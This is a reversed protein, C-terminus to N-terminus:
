IYQMYPIFIIGGVIVAAVASILVAGAAVDKTDRAYPHEEPSTLDIDIEIATNFAEATFVIGSTLILLIWETQTIHFYVGLAVACLFLFIHVWANHTSKVFVYIGRGAHTFSEARKVISFRRRESIKSEQM